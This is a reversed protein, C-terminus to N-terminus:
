SVAAGGLEAWCVGKSQRPLSCCSGVCPLLHGQSLPVCCLGLAVDKLPSFCLSLPTELDAFCKLPPLILATKRFASLPLELLLPLVGMVLVAACLWCSCLCCLHHQRALPIHSSSLQEAKKLDKWTKGLVALELLEESFPFERKGREGPWIHALNTKMGLHFAM